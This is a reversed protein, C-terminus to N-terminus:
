LHVSNSIWYNGDFFAPILQNLNVLRSFFVKLYKKFKHDVVNDSQYDECKSKLIGEIKELVM